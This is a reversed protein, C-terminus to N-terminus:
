HGLSVFFRQSDAQGQGQSLNLANFFPNSFTNNEANAPTVDKIGATNTKAATQMTNNAEALTSFQFSIARQEKKEMKEVEAQDKETDVGHRKDQNMEGKLIAIGDRTKAIVTGQRAAQRVASDASVIAHIKKHAPSADTNNDASGDQKESTSEAKAKDDQNVKDKFIVTGDSNKAIVTGPQPAQGKDAPLNKEDAKDFSSETTQIKDESKKEKAPEKDEQLRALMAERKQSRLLEEQHRKLEMNLNSIENQLKKRENTKETVSLEEKSSLKQMQQQADTIENQYKKIKPDATRSTITQMGSMSSLSTASGIEM